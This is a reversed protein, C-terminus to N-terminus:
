MGVLAFGWLVVYAATIGANVWRQRTSGRGLFAAALSFLSVLPGLLWMGGLWRIFVPVVGDPRAGYTFFLFYGGVLNAVLLLGNVLTAAAVLQHRREQAMNIVGLANAKVTLTESV